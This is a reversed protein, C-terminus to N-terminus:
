CKATPQPCLLMQYLLFSSRALPAKMLHAGCVTVMADGEDREGVNPGVSITELARRTARTELEM